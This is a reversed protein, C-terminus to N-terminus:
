EKKGWWVSIRITGTDLNARTWVIKLYMGAIAHGYRAIPEIDCYGVPPLNSGQAVPDFYWGQNEVPLDDDTYSKVIPYAPFAENFPAPLVGMQQVTEDSVPATANPDQAKALAWAIIRDKDEFYVSAYDDPDFSDTTAYGGAIWRGDDVGFQGPVLLYATAQKTAQDVQGKCKALKLDKNNFEFQTTVTTNPSQNGNEKYNNEFDEQDSGAPTPTVITIQTTLEVQGDIASLWYLGNKIFWQISLNRNDAFSKLDSWSAKYIM